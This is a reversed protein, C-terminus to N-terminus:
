DSFEEKFAVDLPLTVGNVIAFVIIILDWVFRKNSRASVIYPQSIIAADLMKQKKTEEDM